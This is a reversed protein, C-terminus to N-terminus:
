PNMTASSNDPNVFGGAGIRGPEPRVEIVYQGPPIGVLRFAGQPDTM